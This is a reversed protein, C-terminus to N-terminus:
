LGEIQAFLGGYPVSVKKTSHPLDDAGCIDRLLIEELEELAIHPNEPISSVDYGVRRLALRASTLYYDLEAKTQAERALRLYIKFDKILANKGTM